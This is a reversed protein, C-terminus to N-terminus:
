GYLTNGSLLLDGQPSDAASFTTGFTYLIGFGTGDTNLKFLVGEGASGGFRTTGYLTNGSLVLGALPREGNTSTGTFNHLNTPGSGDTNVRFVTGKASSGGFSATGYLANGSLVLNAVSKYGDIGGNLTYLNTFGTGDTNVKYVTGSGIGDS